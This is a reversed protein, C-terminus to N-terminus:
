NGRKFVPTSRYKFILYTFVFLMVVTISQQIFLPKDGNYIAWALFSGNAWVLIATTILSFDDTSKTKIMRHIQPLWSTLALIAVCVMYSEFASEFDMM